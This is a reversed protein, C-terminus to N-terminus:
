IAQMKRYRPESNMYYMVANKQLRSIFHLGCAAVAVVVEKKAFCADVVM